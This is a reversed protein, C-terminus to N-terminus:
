RETKRFRRDDQQLKKHAALLASGIEDTLTIMLQMTILNDFVPYFHLLQGSVLVLSLATAHGPDALGANSPGALLVELEGILGLKFFVGRPNAHVNHSAMRYYPGLHDIGAAEQIDAITPDRKALHKAAWGYPKGFEPGYIKLAQARDDEIKEITQASLPKQSLRKRHRQYQLAAKWAEIVQHQEYREALEDGHHRILCGVASIEHLTRWRAMAGDAFGNSLLCVVEEAVQCARAHLRILIEVSKTTNGIDAGEPPRNVERGYERAITTLMRLKDLGEGWREQLRKHFGDLERRQARYERPWRRKLTSLITESLDGM